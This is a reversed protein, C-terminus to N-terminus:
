AMRLFGDHLALEEHPEEGHRLGGLQSAEGLVSKMMTQTGKQDLMSWVAKSDVAAMENVM